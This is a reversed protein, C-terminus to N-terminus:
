VKIPQVGNSLFQKCDNDKPVIAAIFINSYWGQNKTSRTAIFPELISNNSMSEIFM